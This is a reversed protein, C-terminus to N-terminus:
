RASDTAETPAPTATATGPWVIPGGSSEGPRRVWAKRDGTGDLAIRLIGGPPKTDLRVVYRLSADPRKKEILVAVRGMDREPQSTHLKAYTGGDAPSAEDGSFSPMITWLPKDPGVPVGDTPAVSSSSSATATSPAPMTAPSSLELRGALAPDLPESLLQLASEDWAAPAKLYIYPYVWMGGRPPQIKFRLDGVAQPAVAFLNLEPQPWFWSLVRKWGEVRARCTLKCSGKNGQPLWRVEGRADARGQSSETNFIVDWKDPETTSVMFASGRRLLLTSNNTVRQSVKPKPWRVLLGPPEPKSDRVWYFLVVVTIVAFTALWFWRAQRRKRQRAIAIRQQSKGVYALREADRGTIM